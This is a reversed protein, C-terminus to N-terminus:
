EEVRKLANEAIERLTHVASWGNNMLYRDFGRQTIEELAYICINLKEEITKQNLAERVMSASYDLEAMLKDYTM